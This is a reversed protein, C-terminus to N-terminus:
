ASTLAEVPLEFFPYGGDDALTVAEGTWSICGYTAKMCQYVTTGATITERLWPCEDPTVDRNVTYKM